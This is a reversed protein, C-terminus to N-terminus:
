AQALDAEKESDSTDNTQTEQEQLNNLAHRIFDGITYNLKERYHEFLVAEQFTLAFGTYHVNRRNEKPAAGRGRKVKAIM